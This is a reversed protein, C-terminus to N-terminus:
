VLKRAFAGEGYMSWAYRGQYIHQFWDGEWATVDVVQGFSLTGIPQSEKSPEKRVYLSTLIKVAKCEHAEGESDAVAKEMGDVAEAKKKKNKTLKPDKIIGDRIAREEETMEPRVVKSQALITAASQILNVGQYIDAEEIEAKKQASSLNNYRGIIHGDKIVDYKLETKETTKRAM